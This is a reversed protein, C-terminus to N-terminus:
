EQKYIIWSNMHTCIKATTRDTLKNIFILLQWTAMSWVIDLTSDTDVWTVVTALDYAKQYTLDPEGM